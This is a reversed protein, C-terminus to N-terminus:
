VTQFKTVGKSKMTQVANTKLQDNDAFGADLCVVREPKKDAMAKIVEPTLQKELCILMMGDAVSFVTKEALTIKEAKTDLPFGSKILLEYLVDEQTRGEVLHDVHLTLQKVLEADDKPQAANWAKFNSSQLKFVKFGRDQQKDQGLGLQNGDSENLTKIVRRVREKTIEAITAVGKRDTPEPLQVLVFQRNVKDDKNQELVAHATTGSGAFFDLVIGGKEAGIQILYKLLEKPKPYQFTVGMQELESRMRETTGMNRLVSMINRAKERDRRYYIVGNESLYFTVKDGDDDLPQFGGDIFARLKNANAWGSFVRCSAELKGNAVRMPDLRIPYTVSHEDTMERTIYGHKAVADFFAKPVDSRPLDLKKSLCPFGATLVIESPPNGAGNKTISNEAFGKWLNSEQRTNPDVVHGLKAAKADRAYLLVYEHNVKVDFQNDTHGETNWVFQAIFNEEGFIENCLKRM